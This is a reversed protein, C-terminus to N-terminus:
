KVEMLVRLSLDKSDERVESTSDKPARLVVSVVEVLMELCDLRQLELLVRAGAQTMGAEGGGKFLFRPRGRRARCGWLASILWPSGLAGAGSETLGSDPSCEVSM